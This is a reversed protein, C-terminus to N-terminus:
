VRRAEPQGFLGTPRVLLVIVLLLLILPLKMETGLIDQPTYTGLLNEGVGIIFGGVVAGPPSNLGGLVAAAFAFILVSFMFGPHLFTIPAILLGALGGVAASLAWGLTLMRGVNIGMLQSALRNQATARMALGLKTYNFLAFLAVMISLGVGLILIRHETIRAIGIDVSATTSLPSPFVKPLDGQAWVWTAVSNLLIFLGLTVVVVNLQPAGQTPRIALREIVAGIGAALMVGIIIIQWPELGALWLSWMAFAGFMAMEGQAFNLVDTSRYILVIALAMLAYISGTALGAVIQEGFLDPNEWPPAALFVPSELLAGIGSGILEM